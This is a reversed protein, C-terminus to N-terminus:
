YRGSYLSSRTPGSLDAARRYREAQEAQERLYEKYKRREEPVERVLKEMAKEAAEDNQICMELLPAKASDGHLKQRKEIEHSFKFKRSAHIIELEEKTFPKGWNKYVSPPVCMFRNGNEDKKYWSAGFMDDHRMGDITLWFFKKGSIGKKIYLKRIAAANEEAALVIAKDYPYGGGALFCISGNLYDVRVKQEESCFSRGKGSEIERAIYEFTARLNGTFFADDQVVDIGTFSFGIEGEEQSAIRLKSEDPSCFLVTNEPLTDLQETWEPFLVKAQELDILDWCAFSVDTNYCSVNHPIVERRGDGYYRVKAPSYIECMQDTRAAALVSALSYDYVNLVQSIGCRVGWMYEEVYEKDDPAATGDWDSFNVELHEESKIFPLVKPQHVTLGCEQQRANTFWEALMLATVTLYNQRRKEVDTTKM